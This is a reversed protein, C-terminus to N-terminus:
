ICLDSTLKINYISSYSLHHYYQVNNYNIQGRCNTKQVKTCVGSHSIYYYIVIVYFPIGQTKVNINLFVVSAM